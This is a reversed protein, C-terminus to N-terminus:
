IRVRICTLQPPQPHCTSATCPVSGEVDRVQAPSKNVRKAIAVIDPHVRLDWGHTVSVDPAGIPSYGNFTIGRAACYALLADPHWFPHFECQNVSPLLGDLEEIDQLHNVEFNSVGIARAAGKGDAFITEMAKWTSQRCAKPSSAPGTCAPDTSNIPKSGTQGPWHILLLDVYPTDLTSLV